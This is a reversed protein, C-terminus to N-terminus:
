GRVGEQLVEVDLILQKIMEMMPAILSMQSVGLLTTETVVDKKGEVPDYYTMEEVAGPFHEQLEQAVYGRCNPSGRKTYKRCKVGKFKSRLDGFEYDEIDDKIKRDSADLLVMAGAANNRLYGQFTADGDRCDIFDQIGADADAGCQIYIGIRDANNGDNYFRCITGTRNVFCDFPTGPTVTGFGVWDQTSIASDTTSFRWAADANSGIKCADPVYIISVGSFEFYGGANVILLENAAIGFSGTSPVFVDAFTPSSAQKVAQDFWDALTPNGSLTITRAADGTVLTLIRDASLDTGPSIILDHDDGTDLIHCGDNAMTLALPGATDGLAQGGEGAASHDHVMDAAAGATVDDWDFAKSAVDTGDGVLIFHDTKASHAEWDVAGGRIVAGRAYGGIDTLDVGGVTMSVAGAPNLVQWQDERFHLSYGAKLIVKAIERQAAGHEYQITVTATATDKNYISINNVLRQTSAGPVGVLEVPNAGDTVGDNAGPTLAPVGAVYDAYSATFPLENAAVAGDLLIELKKDVDDLVISM